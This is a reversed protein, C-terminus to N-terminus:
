TSWSSARGTRIARSEAESARKLKASVVPSMSRGAALVVAPLALALVVTVLLARM